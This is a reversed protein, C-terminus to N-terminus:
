QLPHDSLPAALSQLAGEQATPVDLWDTEGVRYLFAVQRGHRYFGRYTSGAPLERNAPPPLPEGALLGGDMFGHRVSSFKLFGDKWLAEYRLTEPNFCTALEGREGLRVCVGKPVTVGAGRFIAAQLSGLDTANWRDSAWTQENQNGWHGFSGGDIGPYAPLLVPAIPAQRFHRAEKSYFDYLRDRNVFHSQFPWQEPHLPAKAYSWEAAEHSTPQVLNSLPGPGKLECLFRVVDARQTPSMAAVLGEPMLTGVERLEELESRPLVTVAGRAPDRLEVEQATQGVLYGQVSRGSKTQAMWVRYEPRVERRPWYLAEVIQSPTLRGGVNTLEPGAAGGQPGVKHCSLCAFHASGFIAAGRRANGRYRADELAETVQQPSYEAIGGPPLCTNASEGRLALRSSGASTPSGARPTGSTLGWTALGLALLLLAAGNWRLM